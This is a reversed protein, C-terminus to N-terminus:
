AKTVLNVVKYIKFCIILFEHDHWIEIVASVIRTFNMVLFRTLKM